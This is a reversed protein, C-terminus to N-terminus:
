AVHQNIKSFDLKGAVLFLLTRMTTLNTYGCAKRKAAQFLRGQQIELPHYIARNARSRRDDHM